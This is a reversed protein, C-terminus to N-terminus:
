ERVDNDIHMETGNKRQAAPDVTRERQEGGAGIRSIERLVLVGYRSRREYM